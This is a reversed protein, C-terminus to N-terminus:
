WGARISNAIFQRDDESVWWGVPICVMRAVFADLQPLRRRWAAVTSHKDNREHVRSTMVGRSRMVAIFEDRADVKITHIWSASERDRRLALLEVGPINRLERDYFAANDRHLAVIRDVHKLQELGITAAVDNMHFKWGWEEVDNECRLDTPDAERDIGYWRLRKGRSYASADRALLLGGDVTTMHKIAQFSFVGFDSQTGVHVGKYTSGFAHAADEIVKLGHRRAVSWTEDLDAPYGGWHVVMVAKAKPTVLSEIARPDLNGTAPDVDAWVPVAGQALIAWNTAACTLPTTIVEDGPGVGALRLALQLGSTASNLALAHPAGLRASLAGEFEEVRPGQGIYGSFLTARLPEMVSEPM